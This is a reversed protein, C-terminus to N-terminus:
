SSVVLWSKGPPMTPLVRGALAHSVPEIGPGLLDWMGCPSYAWTGCSSLELAVVVSARAGLAWAGGCSSFGSCHSARASCHLTARARQM